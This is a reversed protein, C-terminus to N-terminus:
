QYFLTIQVLAHGFKAGYRSGLNVCSYSKSAILGETSHILGHGYTQFTFWLTVLFQSHANQLFVLDFRM